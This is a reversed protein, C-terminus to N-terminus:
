RVSICIALKIIACSGLSPDLPKIIICIILFSNESKSLLRLYSNTLCRRYFVLVVLTLMNFHVLTEGFLNLLVGVCRNRMIVNCCAWSLLQSMSLLEYLSIISKLHVSGELPGKSGSRNTSFNVVSRPFIM